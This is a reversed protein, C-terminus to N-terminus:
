PLLKKLILKLFIKKMKGVEDEQQDTQRRMEKTMADISGAMHMGGTKKTEKLPPVIPKVALASTKKKGLTTIKKPQVSALRDVVDENESSPWENDELIKTETPSSSLNSPPSQQRSTTDKSSTIYLNVDVPNFITLIDEMQLANEGTAVRKIFLEDFKDVYKCAHYRLGAAVPHM